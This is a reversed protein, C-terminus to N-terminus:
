SRGPRLHYRLTFSQDKTWAAPLSILACGYEHVGGVYDTNRSQGLTTPRPADLVISHSDGAEHEFRLTRVPGAVTEVGDADLLRVSMGPKIDALPYPLCESLEELACDAAATVTLECEVETELFRYCREYALPTRHIVGRLRATAQDVDFEARTSWYYPWETEGDVLRAILTNACPAGWNRSLISAGFRPSWFLCLGDNHPFQQDAHKPRTGVQWMQYAVGGYLFAYYTPRKVCFFEDGFQRTFSAPEQCPLVGPLWASPANVYNAFAIDFAGSARSANARDRSFQDAPLYEFWRMLQREAAARADDDVPPAPGLWPPHDPMRVGAEPLDDAMPGLGAGYQPSTWDGPTRHCYGSSGLWRGNPEPAITHNFLRYARRQADLIAPDRTDHYLGALYHGSIGNYTADPGLAETMYGAPRQGGMSGELLWGLNRLVARRYADEGTGRYYRWLGELLVTWQNACGGVTTYLFRDTLRQQATHWVAQVDPPVDRYVLSFAGSHSHCIAFGHNGGYYTNIPYVYEGERLMMMDLLAAVIIRNLLQPNHRYPNLDADLWYLAALSKNLPAFAELGLRQYDALPNDSRRSEDVRKWTEIAGFWPSAPDLCQDALIPALNGFVGWDSLLLQNRAPEKLFAAKYAALPKLEVAYDSAPRRRYQQLLRWAAAQHKHFCISGDPMIDVSAHIAQATARSPCLIIPLGRFDLRYRPGRAALRWIHEGATPLPVEGAPNEANLSLRTAGSEDQLTLSDFKESAAVPLKDLGPPLYVHTDAFQDGVGTLWQVHGLVGFELEPRTEIKVEVQGWRTNGWGHVIVQYVGKQGSKIPCHFEEWPIPHQERDRLFEHRCIVNEHPDLVRVLTPLVSGNRYPDRWTVTLEFDQERSNHLYFTMGDHLVFPGSFVQAQVDGVLPSSALLALGLYITRM